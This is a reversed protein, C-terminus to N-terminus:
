RCSGAKKERLDAFTDIIIGFVINLTIIIVLFFFLLDYVFRFLYMPDSARARTLVDGIGGGNRLGHNITTLMCVLLSSCSAEDDVVFQEQFYLHGVVAFMYILM